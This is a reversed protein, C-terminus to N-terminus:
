LSYIFYILLYKLIFFAILIILYPSDKKEKKITEFDDIVIIWENEELVEKM